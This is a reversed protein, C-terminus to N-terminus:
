VLTPIGSLTRIYTQAWMCAVNAKSCSRGPVL